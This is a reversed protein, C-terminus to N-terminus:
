QGVGSPVPSRPSPATAERGLLSLRLLVIDVVSSEIQVIHLISLEM